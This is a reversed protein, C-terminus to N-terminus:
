RRSFGGLVCACMMMLGEARNGGAQPGEEGSGAWGRREDEGSGAAPAAAALEIVSGEEGAREHMGAGKDGGGRTGFCLWAGREYLTSSLPSSFLPCLPLDGERRRKEGMRKKGFVGRHETYVFGVRVAKSVWGRSVGMRM